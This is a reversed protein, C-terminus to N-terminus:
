PELQGLLDMLEFRVIGLADDPGRDRAASRLLRIIRELETAWREVEDADARALLREELSIVEASM